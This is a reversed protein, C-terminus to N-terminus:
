PQLWLSRDEFCRQLVVYSRPVGFRWRWAYYLWQTDAKIQREILQQTKGGESLPKESRKSCTWRLLTSVALSNKHKYMAQRYIEFAMIKGQFHTQLWTTDLNNFFIGLNAQIQMRQDKELLKKTTFTRSALALHERRDPSGQDAGTELQYGAMWRLVWARLPIKAVPLM